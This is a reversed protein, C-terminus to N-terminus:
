APRSRAPKYDPNPVAAAGGGELRGSEGGAGPMRDRGIRSGGAASRALAATEYVFAHAHPQAGYPILHIVKPASADTFEPTGQVVNFAALLLALLLLPAGTLVLKKM